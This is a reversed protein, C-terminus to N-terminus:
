EIAAGWLLKVGSRPQYQGDQCAPGAHSVFSTIAVMATAAVGLMWRTVNVGM